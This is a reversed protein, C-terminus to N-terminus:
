VRFLLGQVELGLDLFRCCSGQVRFGAGYVMFGLSWVGFRIGKVRFV